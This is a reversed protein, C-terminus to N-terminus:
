VRYPGRYYSDGFGLIVIFIPNLFIMGLKFLWDKGFVTGLTWTTVLAFINGVFPIIYLLFLLGNGFVIECLVYLHYIPILSKWGAFGAKEFVKWCAIVNIVWWLIAVIAGSGALIARITEIPHLMLSFM